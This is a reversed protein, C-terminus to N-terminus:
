EVIENLCISFCSTKKINIYCLGNETNVNMYANTGDRYSIEVLNEIETIGKKVDEMSSGSEKFEIENIIKSKYIEKIGNDYLITTVMQYKKM